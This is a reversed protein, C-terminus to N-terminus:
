KIWICVFHSFTFWKVVATTENWPSIDERCGCIRNVWQTFTLKVPLWQCWPNYTTSGFELKQLLSWLCFSLKISAICTIWFAAFFILYLVFEEACLCSVASFFMTHSMLSSVFVSAKFLYLLYDRSQFCWLLSFCRFSILVVVLSSLNIALCLLRLVLLIFWSSVLLHLMYYLSLSSLLACSSVM